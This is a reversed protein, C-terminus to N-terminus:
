PVDNITFIRKGNLFWECGDYTIVDEGKTYTTGKRQWGFEVLFPGCLLWENVKELTIM